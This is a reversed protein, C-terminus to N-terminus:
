KIASAIFVYRQDLGPQPTGVFTNVILGTAGAEAALMRAKTLVEAEGQQSVATFHREVRVNGLVRASTPGTKDFVAVQAPDTAPSTKDTAPLFIGCTNLANSPGTLWMGGVVIVAIALYTLNRQINLTLNM